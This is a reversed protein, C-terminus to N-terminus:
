LLYSFHSPRFSTFIPIDDKLHPFRLKITCKGNIGDRSLMKVQILQPLKSIITSSRVECIHSFKTQKMKFIYIKNDCMREQSIIVKESSSDCGM